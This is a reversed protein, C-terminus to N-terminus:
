KIESHLSAVLGAFHSASNNTHVSEDEVQSALVKTEYTMHDILNQYATSAERQSEKLRQEIKFIGDNLQNSISM